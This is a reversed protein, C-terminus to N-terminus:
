YKRDLDNVLSQVLMETTPKENLMNTILVNPSIEGGHALLTKHYREGMSRNFPDQKFCTHWIRSAIARSMLYSYYKAGYGVFHGFRLQWATGPVYPLCHYRNQVDALIETTSKELPHRGHYVQDLISYFVQLLTESASFMRKAQCMSKLVDASLCEGTQWHRAFSSLVRQDLAFYEMLVSPVEAFDTPCRTGTVHQYRTQGLMSHMAHGFEHFLNEVMGPTLLSPTKGLPRPLNLMLVVIPRQYTGDNKLRGGQITFHCDQNPKGPREFFDCYIYGLIGQIEHKVALKHIDHSWTEGYEAEECNLTVGFLASFLNDLGEMCGGLSFYQALEHNSFKCTDHKAIGGYYSADWAEVKPNSGCQIKVRELQKVEMVAKPRVREALLELFEMVREPTSGITGRLARHAYTPFGALEAMAARAALLAELRNLQQQDPYLYMKYAAERVIDNPNDSFMGTVTINEGDMSFVNQLHEPLALRPVSVPQHCGQMFFTGLSLISENLRVFMERNEKSLHIGSQEFDFMFLEAVRQDIEDMGFEDGKVLVRKLAEYISTNTNLMEVLSSINMCVEEAAHAFQQDPHAVRVFDAMDAVRCLTDSLQDFVQVLKRSRANGAAEKVLEETEAEVQQQLLFFGSFETLEPIKFLGVNQRGLSFSLKKEPRTNFATGLPSWTAVFRRQYSLLKPTITRCQPYITSHQLVNGPQLSCSFARTCTASGTIKQGKLNISRLIVRNLLFM